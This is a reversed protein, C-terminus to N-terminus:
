RDRRCPWCREGFCGGRGSCRLVQRRRYSGRQLFSVASQVGTRTQSKTPRVSVFQGKGHLERILELKIRRSDQVLAAPTPLFVRDSRFEIPIGIDAENNKTVPHTPVRAPFNRTSKDDRLDEVSDLVFGAIGFTQFPADAINQMRGCNFGIRTHAFIRMGAGLGM